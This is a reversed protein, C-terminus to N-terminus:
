IGLAEFSEKIYSRGWDPEHFKEEGYLLLDVDVAVEQSKCSPNHRGCRHEIGKLARRVGNLGVQTEAVAVVNLFMGSGDLGIPETWLRPGFRVNSFTHALIGCAKDVHEEQDVNSGVAIILRKFRVNDIYRKM